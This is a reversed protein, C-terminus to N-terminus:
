FPMARGLIYLSATIGQASLSCRLMRNIFSPLTVITQRVFLDANSIVSQTSLFFPLGLHVASQYISTIHAGNVLFITHNPLNFCVLSIHKPLFINKIGTVLLCSLKDSALMSFPKAKEWKNLIEITLAIIYIDHNM